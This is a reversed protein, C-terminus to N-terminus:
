SLPTTQNILNAYEFLQSSSPKAVNKGRKQAKKTPERRVGSTDQKRYYIAVQDSVSVDCLQRGITTKTTTKATTENLNHNKCRM